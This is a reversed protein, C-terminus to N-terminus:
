VIIIFSQLPLANRYHLKKKEKKNTGNERSFVNHFHVIKMNQKGVLVGAIQKGSIM